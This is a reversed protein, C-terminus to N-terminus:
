VGGDSTMRWGADDLGSDDVGSGTGPLEVGGLSETSVATGTLTSTGGLGTHGAFDLPEAAHSNEPPQQPLVTLSALDVLVQSYLNTKARCCGSVVPVVSEVELGLTVSELVLTDQHLV